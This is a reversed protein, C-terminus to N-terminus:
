GIMQNCYGKIQMIIFRKLTAEDRVTLKNSGSALCERDFYVSKVSEQGWRVSRKKIRLPCFPYFGKVILQPSALSAVQCWYQKQDGGVSM